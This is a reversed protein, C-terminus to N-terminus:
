IPETLPANECQHKRFPLWFPATTIPTQREGPIASAALNGTLWLLKYREWRSLRHRIATMLSSKLRGLLRTSKGYHTALIRGARAFFNDKRPHALLKAILYQLLVAGMKTLLYHTL